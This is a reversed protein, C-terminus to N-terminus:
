FPSNQIYEEFNEQPLGMYRETYINDYFLHHTVPAVSIGTQFIEPYQFLLNLTMTGGGSWGYVNIRSKDIYDLKMLEKIAMAQDRTNITGNKKYISKRFERGKPAASGRGDFTVIIFGLDNVINDLLVWIM